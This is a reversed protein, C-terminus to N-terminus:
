TKGETTAPSLAARAALFHSRLVRTDPEGLDVGGLYVHDYKLLTPTIYDAFNAFPELAERMRANEAQLAALASLLAPLANRTEIILATNAESAECDGCVEAIIWNEADVVSCSKDDHKPNNFVASTSWPAALAAENLQSLRAALSPDLM